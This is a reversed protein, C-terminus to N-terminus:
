YSVNTICSNNCLLLVIDIPLKAKIASMIFIGVISASIFIVAGVLCARKCSKKMDM